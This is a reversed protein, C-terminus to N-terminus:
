DMLPTWVWEDLAEIKRKAMLGDFTRQFLTASQGQRRFQPRAHDSDTVTRDFGGEVKGVAWM